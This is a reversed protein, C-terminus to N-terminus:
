LLYKLMSKSLADQYEVLTLHSIAMKASDRKNMYCLPLTNDTLSKLSRAGARPLSLLSEVQGETKNEDATPECLINQLM